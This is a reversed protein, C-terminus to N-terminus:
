KMRIRRFSSEQLSYVGFNGLIMNIMKFEEIAAVVKGALGNVYNQEQRLWLFNV